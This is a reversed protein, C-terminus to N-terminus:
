GSEWEARGSGVGGDEDLNHLQSRAAVRSSLPCRPNLSLHGLGPRKGERGSSGSHSWCSGQAFDAKPFTELFILAQEHSSLPFSVGFSPLARQPRPLSGPIRPLQLLHYLPILARPWPLRGPLADAPPFGGRMRLLPATLAATSRVPALVPLPRHGCLLRVAGRTRATPAPHPCRQFSGTFLFLGWSRVASPPQKM